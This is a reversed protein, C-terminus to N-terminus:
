EAGPVKFHSANGWFCYPVDEIGAWVNLMIAHGNTIEFQLIIQFRDNLILIMSKGGRIVKSNSLCRLFYSVEELASSANHMM